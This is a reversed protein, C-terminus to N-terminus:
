LLRKKFKAPCGAYLSFNECLGKVSSNSAILTGEGIDTKGVITVHSGIWAGKGIYSTFIDPPGYRFSGNNLTHNAPSIVVFPGFLVEDHIFIEGIGLFRSGHGIYVDKGIIINESNYFSVYRGLVLGKGCKKFFPRCFGGRLKMFFVNDPFWNTFLLVFHLPLDYRLLRKLKNM